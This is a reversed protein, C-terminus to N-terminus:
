VSAQLETPYSARLNFPLKAARLSVRICYQIDARDMVLNLYQLIMGMEPARLCIKM